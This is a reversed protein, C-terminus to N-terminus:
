AELAGEEASAPAGAAHDAQSPHHFIGALSGFAQGLATTLGSSPEHEAADGCSGNAAGGASKASRYRGRAAEPRHMAATAAMLLEDAGGPAVSASRAVTCDGDGGEEGGRMVTKRAAADHAAVPFSTTRKVVAKNSCRRGGAAADADGGDGGDGGGDVGAAPDAASTAPSAAPAGAGSAAVKPRSRLSPFSSRRRASKGKTSAQKAQKKLRNMFAMSKTLAGDAVIPHARTVALFDAHHLAMADVYTVAVVSANVRNRANYMSQEGFFERSVITNVHREKLSGYATFVKCVGRNVFYLARGPEGERVVVQKPVFVTPRLCELLALVCPASRGHFIPCEAILRRNVSISLQMKLSPPLDRLLQAKEVSLASSYLYEYFAGIRKKVELPVRKYVLYDQVMELHTRAIARKSDINALTSSFASILLANLFM